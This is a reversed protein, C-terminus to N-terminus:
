FLIYHTQDKVSRGFVKRKHCVFSHMTLNIWFAGKWVVMWSLLEGVVSRQKFHKTTVLNFNGRGADVCKLM